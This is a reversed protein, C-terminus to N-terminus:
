LLIIYIRCYVDIVIVCGVMVVVVVVVAWLLSFFDVLGLGM